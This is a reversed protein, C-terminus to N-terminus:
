PTALHSFEAIAERMSNPAVAVDGTFPLDLSMILFLTLGITAAVAAVMALHARESPLGFCYTFGVTILGGVILALWLPGPLQSGAAFLRDQRAEELSDLRTILQNYLTGEQLTQPSISKVESIVNALAADTAPSDGAETSMADWEQDIVSRAYREVSARIDAQHTSFFGADRYMAVVVVAERDALGSADEFSQWAIAVVFALLVGYLGGVIAILVGAVDNLGSRTSLAVRRRVLLLGGAAVGMAVLVCLLGLVAAPLSTLLAREM